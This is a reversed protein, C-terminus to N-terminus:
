RPTSPVATGPPVNPKPAPPIDAAVQRLDVAISRAIAASCEQLKQSLGVWHQAQLSAGELMAGVIDAEATAVDQASQSRLLAQLGRTLRDNVTMFTEVQGSYADGCASQLEVGFQLIRKVHGEIRNSGRTPEWWWDLLASFRDLGETLPNSKDTM